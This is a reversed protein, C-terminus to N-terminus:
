VYGYIGRVSVEGCRVKKLTGNEDRVILEGQNDIGIATAVYSNDGDTIKVKNNVNVLQRNYEDKMFSLDQQKEFSRYYEAFIDGFRDILLDRNVEKGTENEISTAISNIEEDYEKLKVNIGVGAVVYNIQTTDASMETLIGSVKKGNFVIDNPWKISTKLECVQDIAKWLALACILTIMSANEPKIDPRLLFSMWIGSEDQSIWKRGLRGRGATQKKAIVLTGEPAGEMAIKKVYNNTSDTEDLTILNKGFFGTIM